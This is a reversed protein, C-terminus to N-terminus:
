YCSIDEINEAMEIATQLAQSKNVTEQWEQEAISDAVIGAAAQVYIKNNKIVATRIAIATDLNGNFALYGIAGGYIGRKDPECEDIIQMARIKPAGSLTGAPLSAALVDLADKDDQIEGTVNSVIHMVHSYKEIVMQETVKVSGGQAVVGVDNRGLDILMLHEAIEKPDNLLEHEMNKDEVATKGRRRTGALPRITVAKDQLRVLIEPSAGVIYFDELNLYFMYPSPNLHSLARYLNLPHANFNRSIRRSLQAQMMDGNIIYQQMKGVLQLFEEKEINSVPKTDLPPQQNKPYAVPQALKLLTTSLFDHAQEFSDPQNPDAYCVLKLTRKCNDLVVFKSSFLLLIDPNNLSDAKDFNAIKPEIYRVTDYSFYGVLGGNFMPLEPVDPVKFTQMWKKIFALPNDLTHQETGTTTQIQLINNDVRLIKDTEIGVISYRGWTEGGHISELLYSNKKNALKLYLSIPTDCDLLTEKILPVHNYKGKLAYFDQQTINM